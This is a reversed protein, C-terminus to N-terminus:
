AKPKTLARWIVLPGAVLLSGMPEGSAVATAFRLLNEGLLYAILLVYRSAMRGLPLGAKDPHGFIYAIALMGGAISLSMLLAASIATAVTANYGYRSALRRQEDAPLLSLPWSFLVVWPARRDTQRQEDHSKRWAECTAADLHCNFRIVHAEDWPALEYVHRGRGDTSAQGRVLQQSASRLEWWRDEWLVATGPFAPRHLEVPPPEKWGPLPFGADVLLMDPREPDFRVFVGGGLLRRQAVPSRSLPSHTPPSHAAPSHAPPGSAPTEPWVDPAIPSEPTSM